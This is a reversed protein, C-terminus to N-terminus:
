AAVRGTIGLITRTLEAVAPDTGLDKGLREQLDAISHVASLGGEGLEEPRKFGMSWNPFARAEVHSEMCLAISGHREDKAIRNFCRKVAEEPGELVQFFLGDNFVLLGTIDDKENNKRSQGLIQSLDDSKVPGYASSVYILQLLLLAM